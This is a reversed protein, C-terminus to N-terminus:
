AVLGRGLHQLDRLRHEVAQELDAVSRAERSLVEMRILVALAKSVPTSVSERRWASSLASCSCSVVPLRTLRALSSGAAAARASRAIAATPRLSVLWRATSALLTSM